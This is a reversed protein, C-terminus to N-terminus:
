SEGLKLERTSSVIIKNSTKLKSKKGNPTTPPSLTITQSTPNVSQSVTVQRTPSVLQSVTVYTSASELPIKPSSMFIKSTTAAENTLM